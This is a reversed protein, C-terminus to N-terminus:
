VLDAVKYGLTRLKETMRDPLPATVDVQNWRVRHAHLYFSEGRIPRAGYKRDALLPHGLHAM